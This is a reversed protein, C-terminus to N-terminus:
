YTNGDSGLSFQKTAFSRIALLRRVRGTRGCGVSCGSVCVKSNAFADVCDVPLVRLTSSVYESGTHTDYAHLNQKLRYVVYSISWM